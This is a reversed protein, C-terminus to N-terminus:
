SIVALGSGGNIPCVREIQTPTVPSESPAPSPPLDFTGSPERPELSPMPSSPLAPVANDLEQSEVISASHTKVVVDAIAPSAPTAFVVAATLAAVLPSRSWPSM